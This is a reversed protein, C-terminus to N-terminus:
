QKTFIYKGDPSLEQIRYTSPEFTTNLPGTWVVYTLQNGSIRFGNEWRMGYGGLNFVPMTYQSLDSRFRYLGPEVEEYDTLVGTRIEGNDDLVISGDAEYTATVPGNPSNGQWTGVLGPPLNVVAPSASASSDGMTAYVEGSETGAAVYRRLKSDTAIYSVWIYGDRTEKQDFTVKDGRRLTAVVQGSKSPTDRVNLVDVTVTMTGQANGKDASDDAEKRAPSLNTWTLANLDVVASDSITDTKELNDGEKSFRYGYSVGQDAGGSGYYSFTGDKLAVLTMREGIMDLNLEKNTLRKLENDKTITYLDTIMPSKFLKSPLFAIVLEDIGNGDFDYYAYGTDTEYSSYYNTTLLNITQDAQNKELAVKYSDIVPQYLAKDM